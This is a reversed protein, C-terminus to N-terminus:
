PSDEQTAGEYEDNKEQGCIFPHAPDYIEEPSETLSQSVCQDSESAM